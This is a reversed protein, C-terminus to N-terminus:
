LHLRWIKLLTNKMPTNKLLTIKLDEFSYEEFTYEEFTYDEFRWFLLRWIHIRWFHMTWIKPKGSTSIVRRLSRNSDSRKLSATVVLNGWWEWEESSWHYSQNSVVVGYFLLHIWCIRLEPIFETKIYLFQNETTQMGLTFTPSRLHKIPPFQHQTSRTLSGMINSEGIRGVGEMTRMGVKECYKEEEGGMKWGNEMHMM